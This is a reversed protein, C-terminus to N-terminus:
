QKEMAQNWQKNTKRFLLGTHRLMSLVNASFSLLSFYLSHRLLLLLNQTFAPM